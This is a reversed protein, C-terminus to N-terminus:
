RKAAPRPRALNGEYFVTAYMPPLEADNEPTYGEGVPGMDTWRHVAAAASSSSSGYRLAPVFRPEEAQRIPMAM